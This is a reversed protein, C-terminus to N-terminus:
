IGNSRWLWHGVFVAVEPKGDCTEYDIPQAPHKPSERINGLIARLDPLKRLWGLRRLVFAAKRLHEKCVKHAAHHVTALHHPLTPGHSTYISHTFDTFVRSKQQKPAGRPPSCTYCSPFKQSPQSPTAFRWVRVPQLDDIPNPVISIFSWNPHKLPRLSGFYAWFLCFYSSFVFLVQAKHRPLRWAEWSKRISYAEQEGRAQYIRTGYCKKSWRFPVGCM